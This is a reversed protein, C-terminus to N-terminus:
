NPKKIIANNKNQTLTKKDIILLINFFGILNNIPEEKVNTENKLKKNTGM